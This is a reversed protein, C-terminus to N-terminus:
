AIDEADDRDGEEREVVPPLTRVTDVESWIRQVLLRAEDHDTLAHQFPFFARDDSHRHIWRSIINIQDVEAKGVINPAEGLKAAHELLTYLTSSMTDADHL